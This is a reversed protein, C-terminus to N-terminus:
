VQVGINSCNASTGVSEFPVDTISLSKRANYWYLIDARSNELSYKSYFSYGDYVFSCVVDPITNTTTAAECISTDSLTVFTSGPSFMLTKGSAKSSTIQGNESISWETTKRDSLIVAKEVDSASSDYTLYKTTGTAGTGGTNPPIYVLAKNSFTYSPVSNVPTQTILESSPLYAGACSFLGIDPPPLPEGTEKNPGIIGLLALVVVVVIAVVLLIVIGIMIKTTMSMGKPAVSPLSPPDSM